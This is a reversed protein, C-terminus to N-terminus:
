FKFLSYKETGIVCLRYLPWIFYYAYFSKSLESTNPLSHFKTQQYLALFTFFPLPSSPIVLFPLFDKYM